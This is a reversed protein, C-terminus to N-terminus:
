HLRWMEVTRVVRPIDALAKEKRPFKQCPQLCLTLWAFSVLWNVGFRCFGWIGCLSWGDGGPAKRCLIAVLTALHMIIALM